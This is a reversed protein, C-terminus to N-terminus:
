LRFPGPASYGLTTLLSRCIGLSGVGLSLFGLGVPRDGALYEFAGVAICALAALFIGVTQKRATDLRSLRPRVIAVGICAFGFGSLLLTTALGGLSFDSVLAVLAVLFLVPALLTGLVDLLRSISNM